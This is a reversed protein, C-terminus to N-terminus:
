VVGLKWIQAIRLNSKLIEKWSDYVSQVYPNKMVELLPLTEVSNQTINFLYPNQSHSLGREAAETEFSSM